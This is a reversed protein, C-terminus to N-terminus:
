LRQGVSLRSERGLLEGYHLYFVTAMSWCAPHAGSPTPLHRFVFVKSRGPISYVRDYLRSVNGVSDIRSRHYNSLAFFNFLVCLTASVRM